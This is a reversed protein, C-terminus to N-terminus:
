QSVKNVGCKAGAGVLEVTGLEAGLECGVRVRVRGIFKRCPEQVIVIFNLLM